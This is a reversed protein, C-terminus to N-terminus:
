IKKLFKTNPPPPVPLPLLLPYGTYQPRHSFLDDVISTFISHVGAPFIRAVGTHSLISDLYFRSKLLIHNIAINASTISFSLM